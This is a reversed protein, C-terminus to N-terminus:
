KTGDDFVDKDLHLKLAQRRKRMLKVAVVANKIFFGLAIAGFVVFAIVFADIPNYTPVTSYFVAFRLITFNLAATILVLGFFGLLASKLYAKPKM